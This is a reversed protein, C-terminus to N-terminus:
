EVTYNEAKPLGLLQEEHCASLNHLIEKAQSLGLGPETSQCTSRSSKLIAEECTPHAPAFREIDRVLTSHVFLLVNKNVIFYKGIM